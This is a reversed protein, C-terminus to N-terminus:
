KQMTKPATKVTAAKALRRCTALSKTSEMASCVVLLGLDRGLKQRRSHLNSIYTGAAAKKMISMAAPRSRSPLGGLAKATGRTAEPGSRLM